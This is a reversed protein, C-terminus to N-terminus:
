LFWGIRLSVVEGLSSQLIIALRCNQNSFCIGGHRTKCLNFSADGYQKWLMQCLSKWRPFILSLNSIFQYRFPFILFEVLPPFSISAAMLSPNCLILWVLIGVLHSHSTDNFFSTRPACIDLNYYLQSFYFAVKSSETASLLQWWAMISSVILFGPENCFYTSNRLDWETWYSYKLM